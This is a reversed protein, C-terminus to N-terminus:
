GQERLFAIFQLVSDRYARVTAFSKNAAMLSIEFGEALLDLDDIDSGPATSSSTKPLAVNAGSKASAVKVAPSPNDVRVASYRTYWKPSCDLIGLSLASILNNPSLYVARIAFHYRMLM